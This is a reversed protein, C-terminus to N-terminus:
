RSVEVLVSVARAEGDFTIVSDTIRYTGPEVEPIEIPFPDPARLGIAPITTETGPTVPITQPEGSWGGRVLQHTDMWEVGNWCQWAAGAGVSDEKAAAPVSLEAIAGSAVPNPELKLATAVAPDTDPPETCSDVGEDSTACSAGVLVM